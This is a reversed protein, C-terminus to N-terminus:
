GIDGNVRLEIHRENSDGEEDDRGENDGDTVDGDNDDDPGLGRDHSWGGFACRGEFAQCGLVITVITVIGLSHGM